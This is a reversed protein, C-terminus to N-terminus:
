GRVQTVGTRWTLGIIGFRISWTRGKAFKRQDSPYYDVLQYLTEDFLIDPIHITWRLDGAQRLDFNKDMVREAITALKSEIAQAKVYEDCKIGVQARYRAFVIEARDKAEKNFVFETGFLKFSDFLSVFELLRSPASKARVLYILAGATVIPWAANQ